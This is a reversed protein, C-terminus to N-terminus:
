ISCNQLSMSSTFNQIEFYITYCWFHLTQGTSSYSDTHVNPELNILAKGKGTNVRSAKEIHTRNNIQTIM